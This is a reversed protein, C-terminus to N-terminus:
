RVEEEKRPVFGDERRPGDQFRVRVLLAHRDPDDDIGLLREGLYGEVADWIALIRDQDCGCGYHVDVFYCDGGYLPECASGTLSSLMRCLGHDFPALKSKWYDKM